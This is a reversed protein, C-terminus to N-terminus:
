RRLYAIYWLNYLFYFLDSSFLLDFKTITKYVRFIQKVYM